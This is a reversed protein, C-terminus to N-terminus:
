LVSKWISFLKESETEWSFLKSKKYRDSMTKRIMYKGAICESLNRRISEPDNLDLLNGADPFDSLFNQQGDTSSALIFLGAQFYAIIKNSVAINNNVDKVPEIALGIDFESLFHHLEKQTKPKHWIINSFPMLIEKQFIPNVNGVLHLEVSDPFYKLVPVFKELGRGKDINQSFWIIRLKETTILPKPSIFEANPFYNQIIVSPKNFGGIDKQIQNKILPSAFSIYDADPLYKKLLCRFRKSIGPDNTEGPHYDEVDFGFPIGKKKAFSIAPFLAGPNHGIVLNINNHHIKGLRYQLLFSRKNIYGPTSIFPIYKATFVSITELVSSIVWPLFPHRGAPIIEFSVLGSFEDMLKQNSAKSWNEFEFLLVSVKFGKNIALRVEKVLRPNTALNHTSIFLISQQL